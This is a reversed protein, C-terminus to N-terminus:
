IVSGRDHFAIIDKETAEGWVDIALWEGFAIRVTKM